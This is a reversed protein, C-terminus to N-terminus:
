PPGQAHAHRRVNALAEQASRLLVVEGSGGLPAPDGLVSLATPVKSEASVAATLRGLAEVLTRSQLHGPTLEAVIM